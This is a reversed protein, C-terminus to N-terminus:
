KRVEAAVSHSNLDALLNPQDNGHIRSAEQIERDDYVSGVQSVLCSDSYM